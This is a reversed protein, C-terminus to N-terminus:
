QRDRRGFTRQARRQDFDDLVLFMTGFNPSTSQSVISNGAMTVTHRVGPTKRSIADLQAIAAETRELAAADPLQVSVILRGQDQQPIFGLPWHSVLWWTAVLLAAYAALAPLALRLLWGVLRVYVRTTGAFVWEFLRFFWGM